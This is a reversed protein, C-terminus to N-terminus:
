HRHEHAEAKQDSSSSPRNQVPNAEGNENTNGHGMMGMHGGWVAAVVLMVAMIALMAEGKQKQKM